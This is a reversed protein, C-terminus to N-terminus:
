GMYKKALAKIKNVSKKNTYVWIGYDQVTNECLVYKIGDSVVGTAEDYLSQNLIKMSGSVDEAWAEAGDYEDLILVVDDASRAGLYKLVESVDAERDDIVDQLTLMDRVNFAEPPLEYMANENLRNFQDFKKIYM